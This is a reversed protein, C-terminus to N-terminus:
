SNRIQIRENSEQSGSILGTKELFSDLTAIYEKPHKAYHGVHPTKEWCKTFVPMGLSTWINYLGESTNTTSILDAKSYLLLSPCRVPSSHFVQSTRIYYQTAQEHFVKLHYRLYSELANCLVSGPTFLSRSVGSPLGDFDCVSDWIAGYVRKSLADFPSIANNDVKTLQRGRELLRVLSWGWIYGGVSFGHVLLRDYEPNAELFTFFDEAILNAGKTPWLLQNPTTRVHLVDFGHGLYYNTFKGVHKAKSMLWPLIIVLPPRSTNQHILRLKKERSQEDTKQLKIGGEKSVLEMGLAPRLIHLSRLFRGKPIQRTILGNSLPRLRPVIIDM